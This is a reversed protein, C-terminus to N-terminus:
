GLLPRMRLRTRNVMTTAVRASIIVSAPPGAASAAVLRSGILDPGLPTDRSEPPTLVFITPPVATGLPLYLNWAARSAWDNPVLSQSRWYQPPLRIVGNSTRVAAWQTSNTPSSGPWSGM